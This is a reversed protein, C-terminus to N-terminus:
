PTALKTRIRHSPQFQLATVYDHPTARCSENIVAHRRQFRTIMRESTIHADVKGEAFDELIQTHRCVRSNKRKEHELPVGFIGDAEINRNERIASDEVDDAVSFASCLRLASYHLRRKGKAALGDHARIADDLM